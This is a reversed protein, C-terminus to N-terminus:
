LRKILIGAECKQIHRRLRCMRNIFQHLAPLIGM